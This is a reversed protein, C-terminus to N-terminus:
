VERVRLYALAAARCIPCETWERMTACAECLCKHGCPVLLHTREEAMCVVCLGEDIGAPTAPAIAPGVAALSSELPPAPTVALVSETGGSGDRCGFPGPNGTLAERSRALRSHTKLTSRPAYQGRTM